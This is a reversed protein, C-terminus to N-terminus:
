RRLRFRADHSPQWGAEAMAAFEGAVRMGVGKQGMVVLCELAGAFFCRALDRHQEVLEAVTWDVVGPYQHTFLYENFADCLRDFESM